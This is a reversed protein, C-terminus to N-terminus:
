TLLVTCLRPRKIEVHLLSVIGPLLAPRLLLWQEVADGAHQYSLDPRATLYNIPVKLAVLIPLQKDDNADKDSFATVGANVM